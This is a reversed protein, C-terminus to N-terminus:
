KWVWLILLSVAGMGILLFLFTIAGILELTM